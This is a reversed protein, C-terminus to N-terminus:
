SRFREPVPINFLRAANLGIIKATEDRTVGEGFRSIVDESHPWTGELHPYDNGWMITEVGMWRRTEIGVPDDQFSAHGHQRWYDSPKQKLKPSVWFAHKDFGHDMAWLTYPVWGAGAEITAFRLKPFRELVGSACLHVVPELVTNMAHVVYNIVAGGDGSATRPDKGTGAHLVIPLGADSLAAWLPDFAPDNYGKGDKLLPPLMVSHFGMRAVREVERVAVEVVAPPVLAAPFSRSSGEFAEHVWDNYVSCMALNHQPDASSWSVLGKNPFVVEADIGDFDMDKVRDAGFGGQQQFM